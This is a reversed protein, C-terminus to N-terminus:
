KAAPSTQLPCTLEDSVYGVLIEPVEDSRPGNPSLMSVLLVAMGCRRIPLQMM